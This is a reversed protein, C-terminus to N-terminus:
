RGNKSVLHPLQQVRLGPPQCNSVLFHCGLRGREDLLISVLIIAKPRQGVVGDRVNAGQVQNFDQYGLFRLHTDSTRRSLRSFWSKREGLARARENAHLKNTEQGDTHLLM